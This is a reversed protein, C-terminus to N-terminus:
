GGDEETEDKLEEKREAFEGPIEREREREMGRDGAEREKMAVRSRAFGRARVCVCFDLM